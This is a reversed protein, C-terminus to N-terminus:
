YPESEKRAVISQNIIQFHLPASPIPPGSDSLGNMREAGARTTVSSSFPLPLLKPPSRVQSNFWCGVGGGGHGGDVGGEKARQKTRTRTRHRM